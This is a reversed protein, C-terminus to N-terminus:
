KKSLKEIIFNILEALFVSESNQYKTENLKQINLGTQNSANQESTQNPGVQESGQSGSPAQQPKFSTVVVGIALVIIIVITVIIIKNM